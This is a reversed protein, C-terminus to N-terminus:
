QEKSSDEGVAASSQDKNSRGRARAIAGACALAIAGFIPAAPVPLTPHPPAGYNLHWHDHDDDHWAFVVGSALLLVLTATLRVSSRACTKSIMVLAERQIDIHYHSDATEFRDLLSLRQRLEFGADGCLNM